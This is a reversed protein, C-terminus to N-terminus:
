TIRARYTNATVFSGCGGVGEEGPEHWNQTQTLEGPAPMMGFQGIPGEIELVTKSAAPMHVPGNESALDPMFGMGSFAQPNLSVGTQQQDFLKVPKM